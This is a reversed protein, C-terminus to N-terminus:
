DRNGDRGGPRSRSQSNSQSNRERYFAQISAATAIAQNGAYSPPTISSGGQSGSMLVYPPPPPLLGPPLGLQLGAGGQTIFSAIRYQEQHATLEAISAKAADLEEKIKKSQGGHRSTSQRKQQQELETTALTRGDPSQSFAKRKAHQEPTLKRYEDKKLWGLYVSSQCYPRKMRVGNSTIENKWIVGYPDADHPAGAVAAAIEVDFAAIQASAGKQAKKKTVPCTSVLYAAASEFNYM